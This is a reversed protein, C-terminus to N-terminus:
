LGRKCWNCFPRGLYLYNLKVESFQPHDLFVLKSIFIKMNYTRFNRSSTKQCLAASLTRMLLKDNITLSIDMPKSFQDVFIDNELRIDGNM